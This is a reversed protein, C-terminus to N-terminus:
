QNSPTINKASFLKALPEVLQQEGSNACVLILDVINQTSL